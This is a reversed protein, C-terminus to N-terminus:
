RYNQIFQYETSYFLLKIWMKSLIYIQQWVFALFLLLGVKPLPQYVTLYVIFFLVMALGVLLYLAWAKFFRKGMFSFNLLTAKVTKKSDEVVLRVKVYDFFMKVVSFLLVFVLFKLNSSFILGWESSANKEWINFLASIAVFILGFVGLYGLISILFVRIFRFFYKGCDAFFNALNIKENGDVIRGIVGGDLFIYLLFFLVGPLLIWGILSTLVERYKYIVDGLWLFNIGKAIQDAMLSRSLDKNIFFYLPTIILLSFVFNFLWLYAAIKIKKNIIQIGLWFTKLINM